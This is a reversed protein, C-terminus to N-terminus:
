IMFIDFDSDFSTIEKIDNNRMVYSLNDFFGINNILTHKLAQKYYIVDEYVNM